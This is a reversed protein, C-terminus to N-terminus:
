SQTKETEAHGRIDKYVEIGKKIGAKTAAGGTTAAGIAPPFIAATAADFTANLAAKGDKFKAGLVNLDLEVIRNFADDAFHCVGDIGGLVGRAPVVVLSAARGGWTKATELASANEPLKKGFGEMMEVGRQVGEKAGVGAKAVAGLAGPAGSAGVVLVLAPLGGGAAAAGTGVIAAAYPACKLATRGLKEASSDGDLKLAVIAIDSATEFSEKVGAVAAQAVAPLKM